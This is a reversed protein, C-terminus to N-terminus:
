VVNVYYNILRGSNMNLYLMYYFKIKVIDKDNGCLLNQQKQLPRPTSEVFSLVHRGRLVIMHAKGLPCHTNEVLSM